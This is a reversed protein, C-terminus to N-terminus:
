MLRLYPASPKPERQCDAWVDPYKDKLRAQDLGGSSGRVVRIVSAGGVSGGDADGILKILREALEDRRGKWQAAADAADLYWQYTEAEDDLPIFSM